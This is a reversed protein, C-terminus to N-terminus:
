WDGAAVVVAAVAAAAAASLFEFSELNKNDHCDSCKLITFLVTTLLPKNYRCFSRLLLSLPSSLCLGYRRLQRTKLESRGGGKRKKTNWLHLKLCVCVYM